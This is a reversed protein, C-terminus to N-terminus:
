RAVADGPVARHRATAGANVHVIVPRVFPVVYVTATSGSVPAPQPAEAEALTVGAAAGPAGAAGEPTAPLPSAVTDHAAGSSM